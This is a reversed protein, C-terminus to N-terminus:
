QGEHPEYQTFNDAPEALYWAQDDLRGDIKIPLTIETAPLRYDNEAGVRRPPKQQSFLPSLPILILVILLCYKVNM